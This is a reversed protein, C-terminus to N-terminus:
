IIARYQQPPMNMTSFPLQGERTTFIRYTITSNNVMKMSYSYFSNFNNSHYVRPTEKHCHNAIAVFGLLAVGAVTTVPEPALILALALPELGTYHGKKM